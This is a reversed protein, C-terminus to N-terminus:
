DEVLVAFIEGIVETQFRVSVGNVFSDMWPHHNGVDPAARSDEAQERKRSAGGTDIRDLRGAHDFDRTRQGRGIAKGISKVGDLTM